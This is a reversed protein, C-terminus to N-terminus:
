RGAAHRRGRDVVASGGGAPKGPRAPSRRYTAAGGSLHRRERSDGLPERSTAVVRPVLAARLLAGALGACADLLHECNDLM